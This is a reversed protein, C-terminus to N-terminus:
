AHDVVEYHLTNPEFELLFSDDEPYYKAVEPDEGAFAKICDLDKWFTFIESWRWRGSGSVVRAATFAPEDLCDGKRRDKRYPAFKSETPTRQLRLLHPDWRV